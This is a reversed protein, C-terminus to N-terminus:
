LPKPHVAVGWAGKGVSVTKVVEMKKVDIVSVDNSSGNATYLFTGDGTMGIGWPRKQVEVTRLTKGDAVDVESVSHGRGGAIYLKKEDKSLVMGVPMTGAKLHYTAIPQHTAVDVVTISADSEGSIYARKGDKTFVVDRPRLGVKINAIVESTATKLVSIGNDSESTIYCLSNDPNLRVGEPEKGVPTEAIIKGSETDVSTSKGVDENAIIIKKGDSTLDFQEPDSGAPLIRMIKKNIVDVQAIGDQTKDTTQKGCDADSMWPPCKPSGSLAVFISKGDPAVRLGRPRKGVPMKHIVENTLTSIVSLDESDENTIYVWEEIQPTEKCNTFFTTVLFVFLINKKLMFLSKTQYFLVRIKRIKVFVTDSNTFIRLIRTGKQYIIIQKSKKCRFFLRKLM